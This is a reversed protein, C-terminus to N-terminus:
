DRSVKPRAEDWPGHIENKYRQLWILWLPCVYTAVLVAVIHLLTVAFSVHWFMFTTCGTLAVSMGVDGYKPWLMRVHRRFLPFLGFWAVAFTMFAFVLLDSSPEDLSECLLGDSVDGSPEDPLQCSLKSALVVCAFIAANLSVSAPFRINTIPLHHSDTGTSDALSSASSSRPLRPTTTSYASYDHFAISVLFFITALAWILQEKINIPSIAFLLVLLLFTTKFISSRNVRHTSYRNSSSKSKISIFTLDWVVYTAAILSLSVALFLQMSIWRQYLFLVISSIHMSSITVNVNKELQELFSRDVYNDPYFQSQKVWLMKLWPPRQQHQSSKSHPSSPYNLANASFTRKSSGHKGSNSSHTSTRTSATTTVPSSSSEPSSPSQVTTQMAVHLTSPKNLRKSSGHKGSNSSHTDTDRDRQLHRRQQQQQQQKHQRTQMTTM